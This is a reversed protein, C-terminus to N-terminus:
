RVGGPVAYRASWKEALQAVSPGSMLEMSPVPWGLRGELAAALEVAMLSDLGLNRIPEAPDVREPPLKMATAVVGCIRQVLAEARREPSLAALDDDGGGFAAEEPIMGEWSAGAVADRYAAGWRAWDGNVVGVQVPDLGILHDLAAFVEANSLGRLGLRELQEKLGAARAVMGTEALVGWNIALAPQGAARRHAALGDLFANAAAYSAQGANGILSTVSSFLLFADLELGQAATHLNWAGAVKPRLVRALNERTVAELREDALAAASHAIGRVEAGEERLRAFLAAVAAGDGLDLAVAEAAAGLERLGALAAEAGPTAAGRRGCLVLRAAGREAAWRAVELGLGSLGGAIVWVGRLRPRGEGRLAAHVVARADDMALVVKGIHGARAVLGFAEAARSVPYTRAPLPQLEGAAVLGWVEGLIRACEEPREARLRDFDVAILDLNENFPALGLPTNADIDRKGFEIFRGYPRLLRVGKFLGEGALTNLVVDVGEGGTWEMIDDYFALSRSDSVREIGISRLHERREPSGATAFIEAGIRRAIQIASLGAGGTASHVLLREGRKLRGREVLAYWAALMPTILGAGAELGLRSPLRVVYRTGTTVHSRFSGQYSLCVPDGVAFGEVGAGVGVVIGACEMGLEEGFHTPALVKSSLMGLAKMVDKFNIPAVKVEVEVEGPGPARRAIRRLRLGALNGPTESKLAFASSAGAGGLPPWAGWAVSADVRGVRLVRREGDRWAVEAPNERGAEVAIAAPSLAPGFDAMRVRWGPYELRAARAVGWLAAGALDCVADSAVVRQAGSTVLLVDPVEGNGGRLVQLARIFRDVEAEVGREPHEGGKAGGVWICRALPGERLAEAWGEGNGSVGCAVVEVAGARLLAAAVADALGAEAVVATRGALAAGGGDDAGDEEWRPGILLERVGRGASRSPMLACRAGRMALIRRGDGDYFDADGEFGAADIATIRAHVTLLGEPVGFSAIRDIRSPLFRQGGGVRANGDAVAAL